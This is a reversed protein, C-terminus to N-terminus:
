MHKFGMLYCKFNPNIHLAFITAFFFFSDLKKEGDSLSLCIFPKSKFIISIVFLIPSFKVNEGIKIIM